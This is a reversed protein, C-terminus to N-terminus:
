FATQLRILAQIGDPVPEKCYHCKADENHFWSLVRQTECDVHCATLGGLKAKMIYWGMGEFVVEGAVDTDMKSHDM